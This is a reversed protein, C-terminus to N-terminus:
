LPRRPYRWLPPSPTWLPLPPPVEAEAMVEEEITIFGKSIESHLSDPTFLEEAESDEWTVGFSTASHRKLVGKGNEGAEGHIASSVGLSEEDSLADVKAIQTGANEVEVDSNDEVDVEMEEEAANAAAGDEAAAAAPAAGAAPSAAAGAPAEAATQDSRLVLPFAAAAVNPKPPTPAPTAKAKKSSTAKKKAPKRKKKAAAATAAPKSGCVTCLDFNHTDFLQGCTWAKAAGNANLQNGCDDCVGEANDAAIRVLRLVCGYVCRQQTAM